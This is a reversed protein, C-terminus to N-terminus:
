PINKDTCPTVRSTGGPGTETGARTDEPRRRLAETGEGAQDSRLVQFLGPSSIDGVEVGFGRFCCVICLRCGQLDRSTQDKESEPPGEDVYM